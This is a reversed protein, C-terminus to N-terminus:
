LQIGFHGLLWILAAYCVMTLACAAGLSPWFGVGARLLAPLVLFLPLSALVLWFISQSLMAVRETSGSEVYLWFFALLSALPLSVLLAAWFTSRRAIESVLVVLTVTLTVKLSYQWM